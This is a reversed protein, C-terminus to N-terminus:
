EEFGFIEKSLKYLNIQDLISPLADAKKSLMAIVMKKLGPKFKKDDEDNLEVNEWAFDDKKCFQLTELPSLKYRGVNTSIEINWRGGGGWTSFYCFPGNKTEGEGIFTSGTPHYSLSGYHKCNIRNPPGILHFVTDIVHTSNAFGWKRLFDLPKGSRDIDKKRETFEFFCGEVKEKSLQDKLNLVSSYYRRNYAIKLYDEKKINEKIEELNVLNFGGPKEILINKIGKKLCAITNEPLAEVASAIIALKIEECNIQNLATSGEGLGIFGYSNALRNAKDFDRGIVITEEKLDQLVKLYEEGMPGSGFVIVKKAM